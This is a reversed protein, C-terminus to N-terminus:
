QGEGVVVFPAWMKPHAMQPHDHDGLLELMARRLAEARGIRRDLSTRSLTATTLRSAATDDVPWHSVLLSRAGAYFFARALGSLAEAGPRGDGSATNCASLIVWDASLELGAAESATLLGDDDDSATPPPTFVLAPEALGTLEGAVLGHTAFALVRVDALRASRVRAETAAAGVTVSSAPARLTEALRRLEGETQPLSALKRIEAVDTVGGRTLKVVDGGRAEGSGEGLKPAGFGVFPVVAGSRDVPTFRRLMALSSVSPLIAVAHDRVFWSTTRLAEPDADDGQPPRTVLLSPPLGTWAGSLVFYVTTGHGLLDAFPALYATHLAHATARDFGREGSATAEGFASEAGRSGSPSADGLDGRLKRIMQELQERGIAVRTWRAATPTVVWVYGADDTTLITVMVEGPRLAARVEAISAPLPKSLAAYRPFRKAIVQDAATLDAKRREITRRLEQVRRREDAAESGLAQALRRDLAAIEEVMDQRARVTRAMEGDGAAFRAATKALATAAATSMAWQASVFARNMLEGPSAGTAVPKAPRPPALVLPAEPGSQAAVPAAPMAAVFLAVLAARWGPATRM